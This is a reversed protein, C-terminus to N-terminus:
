EMCTEVGVVAMLLGNQIHRYLQDREASEVTASRIQSRESNNTYEELDDLLLLHERIRQAVTSDASRSWQYIQM